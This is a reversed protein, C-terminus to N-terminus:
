KSMRRLSMKESLILLRPTYFVHKLLFNLMIYDVHNLGNVSKPLSGSWAFDPLPFPESEAILIKNFTLSLKSMLERVNENM